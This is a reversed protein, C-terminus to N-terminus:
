AAELRVGQWYYKAKVNHSTRGANVVRFIAIASNPDSALTYSTISTNRIHIWSLDAIGVSFPTNIVIYVSLYARNLSNRVAPSFHILLCASTRDPTTLTNRLYHYVWLSHYLYSCAKCLTFRYFPAWVSSCMRAVFFFQYAHTCVLLYFVAYFLCHVVSVPCLLGCLIQSKLWYQALSLSFICIRRDDVGASLSLRVPLRYIDLHLPSSDHTPKKWIM